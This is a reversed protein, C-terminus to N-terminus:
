RDASRCELRQKQAELVLVEGAIWDVVESGLSKLDLADRPPFPPDDLAEHRAFGGDGLPSAPERGYAVKLRRIAVEAPGAASRAL